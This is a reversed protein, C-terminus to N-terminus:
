MDTLNLFFDFAKKIENQRFFRNKAIEQIKNFYGSRIESLNYGERHCLYLFLLFIQKKLPTFAPVSTTVLALLSGFDHEKSGEQFATDFGFGACKYSPTYIFRRLDIDGATKKSVRHFSFLWRCLARCAPAVHARSFRGAEWAAILQEYNYGDIFTYLLTSGSLFVPEPAYLGFKLISILNRMEREAAEPSIAEKRLCLEGYAYIIYESVAGGTLAVPKGPM